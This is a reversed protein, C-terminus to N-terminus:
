EASPARMTPAPPHRLSTNQAPARTPAGRIPAAHPATDKFADFVCQVGGLACCFGGFHMLFECWFEVFDKLFVGFHM